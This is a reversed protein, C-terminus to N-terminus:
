SCEYTAGGPEHSLEDGGDNEAGTSGCIREDCREGYRRKKPVNETLVHDFSGEHRTDPLMERPFVM